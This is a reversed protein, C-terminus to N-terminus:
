GIRWHNPDLMPDPTVIIERKENSNHLFDVTARDAHKGKTYNVIITAIQEFQEDTPEGDILVLPSGFERVEATWRGQIYQGLYTNDVEHRGVIIKLTESLRLHRGFKLLATDTTTITEQSTHDLLDRLRISFQPDNLLCGGAPQQYSLNYTRAFELQAQRGRGSLGLLQERDVWGKQEPITPELLKASLPRLLYGSLGSAKETQLMTPRQQSMPRQGIVEGTFIFHAHHAEMYAKAQQLLFIKCDICPNMESGYGHKPHLVIQLFKDTVDINRIQVGLQQELEEQTTEFQKKKVRRELKLSEFGIDFHLVDVEIGQDKILKVALVSDLGGSFMGIAKIM